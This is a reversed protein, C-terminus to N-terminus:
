SAKDLESILADLSKAAKNSATANFTEKVAELVQIRCELSTRQEFLGGEEHCEHYNKAVFYKEPALQPESKYKQYVLEINNATNFAESSKYCGAMIAACVVFSIVKNMGYIVSTAFVIASMLCGIGIIINPNM